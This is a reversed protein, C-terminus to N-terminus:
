AWGSLVWVRGLWGSNFGSGELQSQCTEIRTPGLGFGFKKKVAQAQVARRHPGIRELQVGLQIAVKQDYPGYLFFFYIYIYVWVWVYVFILSNSLMRLM